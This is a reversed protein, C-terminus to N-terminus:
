REIGWWKVSGDEYGAALLTGDPSFVLGNVRNYLGGPLRVIKEGAPLSWIEIAGDWLGFALLKGDPSFDMSEVCGTALTVLPQGDAANWVQAQSTSNPPCEQYDASSYPVGAAALYQGDPSYLVRTFTSGPAGQLKMLPSGDAAIVQVFPNGAGMVDTCALALRQGDVSFSLSDASEYEGCVTQNFILTQADFDWLQLNGALAGTAVLRGDPSFAIGSAAYSYTEIMKASLSNLLQGDSLRWFTNSLALVQGGPRVALSHDPGSSNTPIMRNLWGSEVQYFLLPNLYNGYTAAVLQQGGPLFALQTVPATFGTLTAQPIGDAVQWIQLDNTQIRNFLVAAGDPSFEFVTVPPGDGDFRQILSGDNRWLSFSANQSGGCCVDDRAAATITQGDPAFRLDIQNIGTFDGALTGLWRGDAAQYQHIQGQSLLALRLGDSSFAAFQGNFAQPAKGTELNYIRVVGSAEVFARNNPLLGGREGSWEYLMEGSQLDYIRMRYDFSDSAAAVRTLLYRGDPSFSVNSEGPFTKIQKGDSVQFITTIEQSTEPTSEYFSIAIQQGDPSFALGLIWTLVDPSSESLNFIALPQGDDLSILQNGVALAQGDPRFAIYTDRAPTLLRPADYSVTDYLYVGTTTSVALWQGDPSYHPTGQLSGMGMSRLVALRAANAATIIGPDPTSSAALTPALTVNAPLRTEAPVTTALAATVQPAFMPSSTSVPTVSAVACGPLALMLLLMWALPNRFFKALPIANM